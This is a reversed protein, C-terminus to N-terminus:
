PTWGRGLNVQGWNISKDSNFPKITTLALDAPDVANIRSEIRSLERATGEPFDMQYFACIKEALRYMLYNVYYDDFVLELKDGFTLPSFAYLGTINTVFPQNPLFYFWIQTGGNQRESFYHYPLSEIDEVRCSGFYQTRSDRILPFRVQQLLYTLAQVEVLNPVFYSEVGTQITIQAHTTYPLGKGDIAFSALLENLLDLGDKSQTDSPEAAQRPVIGSHYYAKTILASALM